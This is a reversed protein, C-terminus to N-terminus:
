RASAHRARETWNLVLSCLHGVVYRLFPHCEALHKDFLDKDLIVLECGKPSTATATRVGKQLLAVEGFMQGPGIRNIERAPRGPDNFTIQVEGKLVVYACDGPEGERFIVEGPAVVRKQSLMLEVEIPDSM